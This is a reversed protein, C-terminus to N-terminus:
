KRPATVRTMTKGFLDDQDHEDSGTKRGPEPDFKIRDNDMVAIKKRPPLQDVPQQNDKSM